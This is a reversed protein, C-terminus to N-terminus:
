KWLRRQKWEYLLFGGALLIVVAIILMNETLLRAIWRLMGAAISMATPPVAAAPMDAPQVPANTVAFSPGETITKSFLAFTSFHPVQGTITGASPDYRSPIDKWTGTAGDYFKISFDQGFRTDPPATFVLSIDPSFVAYDPQLEYARGAFTFAGGPLTGPLNGVTVPTVTISALPKGQKDKASIGTGVLITVFGDASTLTTAQTVVGEANTYLKATTSEAMGQLALAPEPAATPNAAATVAATVQMDGADSEPMAPNQSQIYSSVTLTILQFPNNNGSLSSLGFTSMGLPSDAEYFDLNNVLDTAELDTPLIQGSNGDDAIRWLFITGQGGSHPEDATKWSSNVSMRLTVPASSPFNTKTITATYATGVPVAVPTQGAAIKQLKTEHEPIIGERITTSLIANCPYSPLDTSFSFSSMRGTTESFGAPPAIDASELHVRTPSGTILNGTRTFGIGNQAYITINKLGNDAAPQIELVFKSPILDAPVVSTDVTVTQPGGCNTITLGEIATYTQIVGGNLATIYQYRTKTASSYDNSATLRVTYTGADSYIHSPNKTTGHDTGDGWDWDWMTPRGRSKDTFTVTYPAIETTPSGTFDAAVTYGSPPPINIGFDFDATAYNDKRWATLLKNGTAGAKWPDPGAGTFTVTVTEGATTDGDDSTLTLTSDADVFGAWTAAAASDSIVVNASTLIGGGAYENLDWVPIYILDHQLVPEDTVTIVMSTAGDTTTVPTGPETTLGGPGPTVSFLLIISDSTELTDSRTAALYVEADGTDYKWASNGGAAGTFTVTVSEGAHTAGGASTLYLIFTTGDSEVQRTWDADGADDHVEVNADTM